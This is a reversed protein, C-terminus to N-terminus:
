RESPASPGLWPGLEDYGSAPGRPPGYPVVYWGPYAAGPPRGPPVPRVVVPGPGGGPGGTVEVLRGERLTGQSRCQWLGSPGAEPRGQCLYLVGADDQVAPWAGAEAAAGLVCLAALWGVGGVRIPPM